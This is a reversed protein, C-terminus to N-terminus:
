YVEEDAMETKPTAKKKKKAPKTQRDALWMNVKVYRNGNPYTTITIKQMYNEVVPQSPHLHDDGTSDKPQINAKTSVVNSGPKALSTNINESSSKGTPQVNEEGILRAIIEEDTETM